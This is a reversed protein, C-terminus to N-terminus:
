QITIIEIVIGDPSAQDPRVKATFTVRQGVSQFGAPLGSMPVLVRGDDMEIVWVGTGQSHFQSTGEGTLFETPFWGGQQCVGALGPIGTFPDPTACGSVLPSAPPDVPPDASPATITPTCAM